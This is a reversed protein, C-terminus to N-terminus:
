APGGSPEPRPTHKGAEPDRESVRAQCDCGHAAERDHYLGSAAEPRGQLDGHRRRHLQLTAICGVDDAFKHADTVPGIRADGIFRLFSPYAAECRDGHPASQLRGDDGGNAHCSPPLEVGPIGMDSSVVGVHLDKVPPFPEPDADSRYGTTLVTILNPLERKLSQQEGAMSNSNDVMLLLDVKDVNTIQVKRSVGSVLCPTIPRLERDLCGTVLAMALLAGAGALQSQVTRM